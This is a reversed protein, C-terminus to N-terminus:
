SHSIADPFRAERSVWYVEQGRAVTKVRPSSELSALLASAEKAPWHALARRLQRESLPHRDLIGLIRELAADLSDLSLVDEVPHM